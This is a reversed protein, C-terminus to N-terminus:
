ARGFVLPAAVMPASSDGLQGSVLTSGYGGRKRLEQQTQLVRLRVAGSGEDPLPVAKPQTAAASSVKPKKMASMLSAGAGVVSAVAGITGAAGGVAALVPAVFAM